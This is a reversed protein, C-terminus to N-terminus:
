PIKVFTNSKQWYHLWPNNGTLAIYGTLQPLM